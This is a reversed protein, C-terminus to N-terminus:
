EREQRKKVFRGIPITFAVFLSFAAIVIVLVMLAIAAFELVASM